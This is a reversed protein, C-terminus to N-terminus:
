PRVVHQPTESAVPPGSLTTGAGTWMESMHPVEDVEAVLKSAGRSIRRKWVERVITTSV